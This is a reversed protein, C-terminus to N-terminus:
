LDVEKKSDLKVMEVFFMAYFLKLLAFYKPCLRLDTIQRRPCGRKYYPFHGENIEGHSTDRMEAGPPQSLKKYSDIIESRDREQHFLLGIPNIRIKEVLNDVTAPQATFATVTKKTIRGMKFKNETFFGRDKENKM